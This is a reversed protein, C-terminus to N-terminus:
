NSSCHNVNSMVHCLKKSMYGLLIFGLINFSGLWMVLPYAYFLKSNKSKMFRSFELPWAFMWYINYFPVLQGWVAKSPSILYINDTYVVLIKHFRYVCILWYVALALNLIHKGFVFYINGEIFSFTSFSPLLWFASLPIYLLVGPWINPFISKDANKVKQVFEVDQWIKPNFRKGKNEFYKIYAKRLMSKSPSEIGREKLINRASERATQSYSLPAIYVIALLEDDSMLLYNENLSGM